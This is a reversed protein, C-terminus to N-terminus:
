IKLTLNCLAVVDDIQRALQRALGLRVDIYYILKSKKEIKKGKKKSTLFNKAGWNEGKSILKLFLRSPLSIKFDIRSLFVM